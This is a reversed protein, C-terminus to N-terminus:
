FEGIVQGDARRCLYTLTTLDVNESLFRVTGDGMLGHVGGTHLSATSYWSARQGPVAAATNYKWVNIGTRPYTTNWTGLPDTGVMLYGTYLWAPSRGNYTRQTVESMFLTNSLGDTADSFKAFSNEGFMYRTDISTLRYNNFYQYTNAMQIFEYSTKAYASTASLDAYYNVGSAGPAEVVGGGDSPCIVAQLPQAALQLFTTSQPVNPTALPSTCAGSKYNGFAASFNLQNYIPAQELYPLLTAHGQVNRILQDPVGTTGSVASAGGMGLKGAPSCSYTSEYNHIALGLQKLNNKCQTRRAAERAQQVAPLLLAILIAIIAIVVLLEILTFGLRKTHRM